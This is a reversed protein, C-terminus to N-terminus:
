LESSTSFSSSRPPDKPYITGLLPSQKEKKKRRRGLLTAAFLYGASGLTLWAAFRAIKTLYKMSEGNGRCDALAVRHQPM